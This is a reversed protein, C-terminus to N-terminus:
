FFRSFNLRANADRVFDPVLSSGARKDISFSPRLKPSGNTAPFFEMIEAQPLGPHLNNDSVANYLKHFAIYRFLIRGGNDIGRICPKTAAPADVSGNM